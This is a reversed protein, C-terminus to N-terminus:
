RAYIMTSEISRHRLANKVRLIDRTSRYLKTAFTHRLAHPTAKEPLQATTSLTRFRRQAQRAGLRMGGQGCFTPGQSRKGVFAIMLNMVHEDIEMREQRNGKLWIDMFGGELDLDEIDLALATSLRIGTKLMLTFLTRDRPTAEDLAAIFRSEEAESLARPTPPPAIARRLLRAANKRAWGAEHCFGFFVRISTRLANAATAKRKKGKATNKGTDSVFFKAVTPEDIGQLLASHGFEACWSAFLRVHRQYQKITHQSRGDAELQILFSALAEQLQM